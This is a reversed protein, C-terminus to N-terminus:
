NQSTQYAFYNSINRKQNKYVLTSSTYNPFNHFYKYAM